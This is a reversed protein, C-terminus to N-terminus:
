THGCVAGLAAQITQSTISARHRLCAPPGEGYDAVTVPSADVKSTKENDRLVQQVRQLCCKCNVSHRVRREISDTFATSSGPMIGCGAKSGQM